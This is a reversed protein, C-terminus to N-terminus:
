SSVWVEQAGCVGTKTDCIQHNRREVPVGHVSRLHKLSITVFLTEEVLKCRIRRLNEHTCCFFLRQYFFSVRILLSVQKHSPVVVKRQCTWTRIRCSKNEQTYSLIQCIRGQCIEKLLFQHSALFRFTGFDSSRCHSASPQQKWRWGLYPNLRRGVIIVMVILSYSVTLLTTVVM